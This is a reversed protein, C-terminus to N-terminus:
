EIMRAFDALTIAIVGDSSVLGRAYRARAIEEFASLDAQLRAQPSADGDPLTEDAVYVRVDQHTGCVRMLFSCGAAERRVETGIRELSM